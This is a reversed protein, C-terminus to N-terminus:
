AASSTSTPIPSTSATDIIAIDANVAGSGNGSVTSSLEGDIRNIGTPLTQADISVTQDQVVSQVRDLSAIRRQPPRRCARPM